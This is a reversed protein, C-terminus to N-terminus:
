KYPVFVDPMKNTLPCLDISIKYARHYEVYAFILINELCGLACVININKRKNAHLKIQWWRWLAYM